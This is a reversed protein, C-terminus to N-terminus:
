VNIKIKGTAVYYMFDAQDGNRILDKEQVSRDLMYVSLRVWRESIRIEELQYGNVTYQEGFPTQVKDNSDFWRDLAELARAITEREEKSNNLM